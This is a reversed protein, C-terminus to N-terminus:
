YNVVCVSPTKICTKIKLQTVSNRMQDTRKSQAAQSEEHPSGLRRLRLAEQPLVRRRALQHRRRVLRQSRGPLGGGDGAVAEVPVRRQGTAGGDAPRFGLLVPEDPIM